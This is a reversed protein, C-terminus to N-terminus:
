ARRKQKRSFFYQEGVIFFRGVNRIPLSLTVWGTNTKTVSDKWNHLSKPYESTSLNWQDNLRVNPTAPSSLYLKNKM